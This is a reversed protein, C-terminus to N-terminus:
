ASLREKLDNIAHHTDLLSCFLVWADIDAPYDEFTYAGSASLYLCGAREILPLPELAVLSGEEGYVAMGDAFRYAALQLTHELDYARGTKLDALTTVGDINAIFDFRGGYGMNSLVVREIEIPKPNHDHFFTELADLYPAEDATAAVEDGRLWAECHNHLATGRDRKAAWEKSHNGGDRTIRAAAWAMGTSKGLDLMGTIRTVNIGMEGSPLVYRHATALEMDTKPLQM